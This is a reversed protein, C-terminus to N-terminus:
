TTPANEIESLEPSRGAGLSILEFRSRAGTKEFLAKLHTKVTNPSIHLRAGIEKNSLGVQVLHLVEVERASLGWDASESLAPMATRSRVLTWTVVVSLVVYWLPYLRLSTDDTFFLDFVVSPLGVVGLALFRIALRRDIGPRNIGTFGIWLSYAVVAIFLADEALDGRPDWVGGVVYETFHQGIAALAVIALILLDRGRDVIGFVRHAFFPLTFMIGYFGLISQIYELAFPISQEPMARYFAALLGSAVLISLAVYFALFARALTAGKRRALVLTVGMCTLGISFSIFIYALAFREAV